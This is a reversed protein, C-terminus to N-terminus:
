QQRRLADSRLNWPCGSKQLDAFTLRAAQGNSEEDSDSSDNMLCGRAKWKAKEEPDDRRSPRPSLMKGLGELSVKQVGGEGATYSRGSNSRSSSSADGLNSRSVAANTNSNTRSNSEALRLPGTAPNGSASTISNTMSRPSLTFPYGYNNNTVSSAATSNSAQSSTSFINNTPPRYGPTHSAQSHYSASESDRSNVRHNGVPARPAGGPTSNNHLSM